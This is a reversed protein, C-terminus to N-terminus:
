NNITKKFSNNDCSASIAIPLFSFAPVLFKLLTIKQNKSSCYKRMRHQDSGDPKLM